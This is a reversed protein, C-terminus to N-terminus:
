EDSPKDQFHTNDMVATRWEIRFLDFIKRRATLQQEDTPHSIGLILTLDAEIREHIGTNSARTILREADRQFETKLREWEKAIAM